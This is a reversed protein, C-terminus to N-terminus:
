LHGGNGIEGAGQQVAQDLGDLVQIVPGAGTAAGAAGAAGGAGASGGAGAASSAGDGPATPNPVLGAGTRSAQALADSGCDQEDDAAKGRSRAQEVRKAHEVATTPQSGGAGEAGSGAIEGSGRGAMAGIAGMAGVAGSGAMGSGLEESLSAFIRTLPGPALIGLMLTALGRLWAAFGDSKGFETFGACIIVALVPKYAIGVLISSILKTVWKQTADGGVRGAGAIPLLLCQIPIASNRLFVLMLQVFGVLILVVAGGAVIVPNVIGNPVMTTIIKDFATTDDHFVGQVLGDTLADGATLLLAVLSVGFVSLMANQGWGSAARLLHKAQGTVAMRGAQWMFGFVSVMLGLWAMMGALVANGNWLGTNELKLSPGKLAITLTAAMLTRCLEVAAKLWDGVASEWISNWEEKVAKDTAKGASECWDTDFIRGVLGVATQECGFDVISGVIGDDAAAPPAIATASGFVVALSLLVAAIRRRM